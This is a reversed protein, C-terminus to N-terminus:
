TSPKADTRLQRLVSARRDEGDHCWGPAFCLYRLRDRWTIARRCDRWLAAYEHTAVTLPNRSDINHTLGYVPPENDREAAFTGFLRDWIVLVGAHNRDLYILNSAHHVRHHSPTNFILEIPAPLRRVVQTHVWFQYILNLSIMLFIMLADFGLLPLWLWFLFKHLREGVGQRLATGLNLRVSSHHPVHGAWFVRVEHNARHFWYYTFDDLLFLAVWAWWQRGVLDRLPSIEHLAYFAMFAFIKPLFEAIASLVLMALSTLTDAASYLHRQLQRSLGIEIVIALAFLPAAFNVLNDQALQGLVQDISMRNLPAQSPDSLSKLMFLVVPLRTASPHLQFKLCPHTCKSM